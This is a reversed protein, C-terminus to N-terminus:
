ADDDGLLTVHAGDPIREFIQRAALPDIGPHKLSFTHPEQLENARKARDLHDIMADISGVKRIAQRLVFPARFAPFLGDDSARKPKNTKCRSKEEDEADRIEDESRRRATADGKITIEIGDRYMVTLSKM